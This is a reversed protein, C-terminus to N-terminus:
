GLIMVEASQSSGYTNLAIEGLGDLVSPAAGARM